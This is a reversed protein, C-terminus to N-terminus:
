IEESLFERVVRGCEEPKDVHCLHGTHMEHLKANPILCAAQRAVNLNGLVDKDGWVLLVPQQIRELKDARFQYKPNASTVMTLTSILKILNDLYNPLHAFYYAAEGMARPMRDIDEQSSGQHRLGKLAEGSNKPQLKPAIVRNLGPVGLLRVFFPLSATLTLAPCGLQVLRSVREPYDLAFWFGWLGGISNCVMSVRDLGFADMVSQITKVALQRLDVQRPDIGDSLGGGPRNVALIRYGKLEAMLGAFFCAEGTGGPIMLLPQGEGIELVRVRLNPVKMEVFHVRCDLGYQAFLHQEAELAAKSRPDNHDIRTITQPNMKMWDSKENGNNM